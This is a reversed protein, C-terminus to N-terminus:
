TVGSLVGLQLEIECSFYVWGSMTGLKINKNQDSKQKTTFCPICHRHKIQTKKKRKKKERKMLHINVSLCMIPSVAIQFIYILM